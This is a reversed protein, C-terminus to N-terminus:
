KLTRLPPNYGLDVKARITSRLEEAVDERFDFQSNEIDFVLSLDKDEALFAALDACWPYARNLELPLKTRLRNQSKLWDLVNIAMGRLRQPGFKQHLWALGDSLRQNQVYELLEIIRVM